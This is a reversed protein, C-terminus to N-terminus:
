PVVNASERWEWDRPRAVPVTASVIAKCCGRYVGQVRQNSEGCVLPLDALPAGAVGTEAVMGEVGKVAWACLQISSMLFTILKSLTSSNQPHTKENSCLIASYIGVRARNRSIGMKRLNYLLM